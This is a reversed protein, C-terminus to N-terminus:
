YIFSLERLSFGREIKNQLSLFGLFKIRHYMFACEQAQLPIM